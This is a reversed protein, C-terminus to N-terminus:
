FLKPNKIIRQNNSSKQLDKTNNETNGTTTAPINTNGYSGGEEEVEVQPSLIPDSECGYLSLGGIIILILLLKKVITFMVNM